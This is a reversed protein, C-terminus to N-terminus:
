IDMDMAQANGSAWFVLKRGWGLLGGWGTVLLLLSSIGVHVAEGELTIYSEVTKPTFM